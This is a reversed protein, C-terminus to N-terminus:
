SDDSSSLVGIALMTTAMSGALEPTMDPSGHAPFRWWPGLTLLPADHPDNECPTELDAPTVHQYKVQYTVHVGYEITEEISRTSLAPCLLTVRGSLGRFVVVVLLLEMDRLM